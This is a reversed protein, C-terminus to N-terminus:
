DRVEKIDVLFPARLKNSYIKISYTTNIKLLHIIIQPSDVIVEEGARTQFTLVNQADIKILKGVKIDRSFTYNYYVFLMVLLAASFLVILLYKTKNM